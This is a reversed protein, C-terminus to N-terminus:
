ICETLLVAQPGLLQRLEEEDRPFPRPTYSISGVVEWLQFGKSNLRSKLSAIGNVEESFFGNIGLATSRGRIPVSFQLYSGSFGMYVSYVVDPLTVLSSCKVGYVLSPVSCESAHCSLLTVIVVACELSVVMIVVVGVVTVVVIIVVVVVATTIIIVVIGVDLSSL